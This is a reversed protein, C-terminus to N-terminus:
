MHGKKADNEEGFPEEQSGFKFDRIYKFFLSLFYLRVKCAFPM